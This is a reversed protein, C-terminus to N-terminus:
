QYSRIMKTLNDINGKAKLIDLMGTDRKGAAIAATQGYNDDASRRNAKRVENVQYMDYYKQLTRYLSSTDGKNNGLVEKNIQIGEGLKLSAALVQPPVSAIGMDEAFRNAISEINGKLNEGVDSSFFWGEPFKDVVGSVAQSVTTIDNYVDFIPVVPNDEYVRNKIAEANAVATEYSNTVTDVALQVFPSEDEKLSRLNKASGVVGSVYKELDSGSYGLATGKKAALDQIDRDTAAPNSSYIDMGYVSSANKIAKSKNTAEIDKLATDLSLQNAENTIQQGTIALEDSVLQNERSLKTFIEDDQKLLANYVAEEDANGGVSSLLNNLSLQEYDEMSPTNRITELLKFTNAKTEDQQAQVNLQRREQALGELTDLAGQLNAAGQQQIAAVDSFDPAAINRWTIAM